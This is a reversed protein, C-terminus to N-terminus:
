PQAQKASRTLLDIARQQLDDSLSLADHPTLDVFATTGPRGRLVRWAQYLRWRLPMWPVVMSVNVDGSLRGLDDDDSDSWLALSHAM